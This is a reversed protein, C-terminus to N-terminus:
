NGLLNMWRWSMLHIICAAFLITNATKLNYPGARMTKPLTFTLVVIWIMLILASQWGLFLGCLAMAYYFSPTTQKTASTRETEECAARMSNLYKHEAEAIGLKEFTDEIEEPVDACHRQNSNVKLRRQLGCDLLKGCLGGTLLGILLTKYLAFSGPTMPWVNSLPWTYCFLTTAPNLLALGFGFFIGIILISRALSFRELDILAFTFLFLILILQGAVIQILDWQPNFLIRTFGTDQNPPRIPLTIGGSALTALTILLFVSGLVLEVVLYRPSICAQCFSCQGENHLWGILPVNDGFPLRNNCDPCSSHGLVSQGRPVRWAVVNLFSAFCSGLFFFYAGAFFSFSYHQLDQIWSLYRRMSAPPNPMLQIWLSTALPLVILLLIALIAVLWIAIKIARWPAQGM